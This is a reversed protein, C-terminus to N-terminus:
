EDDDEDDGGAPIMPHDSEEWRRVEFRWQRYWFLLPPGVLLGAALWFHLTRPVDRTLRVRYRAPSPGEPEVLLRYRGAPVAPLYARDWQSGESWSGDSDSGHYYGVERGFVRTAGDGENALTLTFYVWTNSVTTSIEVM